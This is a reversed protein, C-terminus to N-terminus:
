KKKASTRPNNRILAAAVDAHPCNARLMREHKEALDNWGLQKASQMAGLLANFRNPDSLLSQEYQKLAEAPQGSLLLMDGLMERAPIEVESKGAKAQRDALPQLLAIADKVNGRTFAVWARIEIAAPPESARPQGSNSPELQRLIADAAKQDHLHAAGEANALLTAQQIAVAGSPRAKLQEALEWNKTEIAWLAPYRAEVSAWMNPYRPDVDTPQVTEAETVIAKAEDFRGTQLYAYELFEMAHLRNEAGHHLGASEAAAKSALNSAIDDQWLGLRAFIHSPMHLAHPVEPAIQAYQRAGGLGDRAMQPNDCAHIIYHAIGPHNSHDRLLLRLIGFAKRPTVLDVDSPADSALLALAYFVQAELDDAYTKALTAMADSYAAAHQQYSEARYDDFFRHLANIYATERPSKERARDAQALEAEGAEIDAPTPSALLQHFHTMAEGWYAIACDPDSAAVSEFAAFARDHWFSHLLAVGSNFDATVRSACSIRFDVTGLKAPVASPGQSRGLAGQANARAQVLLFVCLAIAQLAPRKKLLFGRDLLYAHGSAKM